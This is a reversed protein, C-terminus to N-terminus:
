KPPPLPSSTNKRPSSQPTNLSLTCRLSFLPSETYILRKLHMGHSNMRDNDELLKFSAEEKSTTLSRSLIPVHFPSNQDRDIYNPFIRSILHEPLPAWALKGGEGGETM